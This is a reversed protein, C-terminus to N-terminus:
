SACLPFYFPAEINVCAGRTLGYVWLEM